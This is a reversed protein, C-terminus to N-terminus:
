FWPAFRGAGFRGTPDFRNKVARLLGVAPPPQGWAPVEPGLGDRRIVTTAAGREDLEGRLATVLAAQEGGRLRITHVGVGLSSSTAADVGHQAALSSVRGVLWDADTPLTGCRLVTDGAQGSAVEAPGDWAAREEAGRLVAAEGALECAGGVAAAVGDVTGEFRALLRGSSYELTAPELAATMLRGGLAFGDGSSCPLALTASDRPAPHCRLWVEALVGLTGLSGHVLKGLDYGAVNKIVQGGSRAITGDALGLTVGIVLDRMTGYAHRLPGGDGTALLGGVTAGAPVRAADLAIRQGHCALRGQLEALPTGAGVCVTMDAPNYEIVGRMATTDLVSGAAGPVGGWDAATGAGAILLRQEGALAEHLEALTEPRLEVGTSTM